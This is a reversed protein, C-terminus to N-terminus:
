TFNSNNQDNYSNGYGYNQQQNFGNIQNNMYVDNQHRYGLNEQYNGNFQCVQPAFNNMKNKFQNNGFNNRPSFPMNSNNCQSYNM